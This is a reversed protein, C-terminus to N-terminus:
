CTALRSGCWAAQPDLAPRPTGAADPLHAAPHTTVSARITAALAIRWPHAAACDAAATRMVIVRGTGLTGQLAAVCSGGSLMEGRLKERLEWCQQAMPVVRPLVRAAPADAVHAAAAAARAVPRMPRGWPQQVSSCPRGSRVCILNHRSKRGISAYSGGNRAQM